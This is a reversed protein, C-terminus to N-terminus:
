PSFFDGAWVGGGSGFGVGYASIPCKEGRLWRIEDIQHIDMESPGMRYARVSEIDGLEGAEIRRM